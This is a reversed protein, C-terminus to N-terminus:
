ISYISSVEVQDMYVESSTCGTSPLLVETCIESYLSPTERSTTEKITSGDIEIDKTAKNAYIQMIPYVYSYLYVSGVQNKLVYM